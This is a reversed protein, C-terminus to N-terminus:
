KRVKEYPDKALVFNGSVSIRYGSTNYFPYVQHIFNSPFLIMTNESDKGVPLVITQTRGLTDVYVFEFSGASPAASIKSIGNYIEDELTYPVNIWIVFSLIGFHEHKPNFEYKKQFNVWIDYLRIYQDSGYHRYHYLINYYDIYKQVYPLFLNESYDFSQKLQYEHEINGALSSNYKPYNNLNNKIKKVEEKIPRLKHESLKIIMYGINPFLKFEFDM